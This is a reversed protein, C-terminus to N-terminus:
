LSALFAVLDDFEKDNMSAKLPPMAAPYGNVVFATPNEISEKIYAIADKGAVRTAATKGLGDLKPGIAGNAGEVSSVAHCTTCTKTKFVQMGAKVDGTAVTKAAHEETKPAAHEETKPAAHEETKPAAHEETKPAAHEETKPAAHEETKPAAHEETKPAAHEETKPAAHEETKPAAHEETKPAAHEETKPAAHEETTTASGHGSSAHHGAVAKNTIISVTTMIAILIALSFFSLVIVKMQDAPKM